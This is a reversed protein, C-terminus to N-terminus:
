EGSDRQACSERVTPAGGRNLGQLKRVMMLVKTIKGVRLDECDGQLSSGFSCILGDMGVLGTRCFIAVKFM